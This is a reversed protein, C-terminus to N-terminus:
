HRHVSAVELTRPLPDHVDNGHLIAVVADNVDGDDEGVPLVLGVVPEQKLLGALVLM